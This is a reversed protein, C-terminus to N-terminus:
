TLTSQRSHAKRRGPGQEDSLVSCFFFNGPYQALGFESSSMKKVNGGDQDQKLYPGYAEYCEIM